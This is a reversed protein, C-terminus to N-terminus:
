RGARAASPGRTRARRMVRLYPRDPDRGAGAISRRVDQAISRASPDREAAATFLGSVWQGFSLGHAVDDPSDALGIGEDIQHVLTPVAADLIVGDRDRRGRLIQIAADLRSTPVYVVGADRRRYARPHALVKMEFPIAASDLAAALPGLVWQAQAPRINLYLRTIPEDTVVVSGRRAVFGPLRGPLIAPVDVTVARGAVLGEAQVRRRPVAARIPGFRVNLTEDNWDTVVLGEVLVRDKVSTGLEALFRTDSAASTLPKFPILDGRGSYGCAYVALYALGARESPSRSARAVAAM